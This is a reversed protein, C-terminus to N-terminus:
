REIISFNNNADITVFTKRQCEKKVCSTIVVNDVGDITTGFEGRQGTTVNGDFSVSFQGNTTEVGFDIKGKIMSGTKIIGKFYGSGDGELEVVGKREMGNSTSLFRYLTVKSCSGDVEGCFATLVMYGPESFLRNRLILHPKKDELMLVYKIAKIENLTVSEGQLSLDEKFLDLDFGQACHFWFFFLKIILLM